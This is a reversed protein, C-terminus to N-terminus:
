VTPAGAPGLKFSGLQAPPVLQLYQPNGAIFKRVEPCFPLVGLRRHHADDLVSRILETEFDKGQYRPMITTTLFWIESGEMRYRLYGAVVGNDYIDFQSAAPNHRVVPMMAEM